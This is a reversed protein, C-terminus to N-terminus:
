SSTKEFLRDPKAAMIVDNRHLDNIAHTWWSVTVKGSEIVIKPHHGEENAFEGINQTFSLASTYKRIKFVRELKPVKNGTEIKWLPIQPKLTEIEDRTARPSDAHCAVCREADLSEM